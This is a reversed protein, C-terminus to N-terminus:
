KKTGKLTKQIIGKIYDSNSSNENSYKIRVRYGKKTNTSPVTINDLYDILGEPTIALVEIDKNVAYRESILENSDRIFKMNNSCVFILSYGELVCKDVNHLEWEINTSVSVECAIKLGNKELSVDVRGNSKLLTQELIAVYGLSEAHRKVLHQLYRHKSVDESRTSKSVDLVPVIIKNDLTDNGITVEKQQTSISYLTQKRKVNKIVEDFNCYNSRIKPIVEINCNNSARGVNVLARGTDLNLIDEVTFNSYNSAVKKADGESVRFNVRIGVNSQISNLVDPFDSLQQLDQHAVILGVSYKRIGSLMSAISPSLFYQFEDIYIFYPKRDVNDSSQRALIAQHFKSLIMSGLLHSNEIGILGQSLKFIIIKNSHIIDSFDLGEKQGVIQRITKHRLFADLRTLIPVVADGRLLPYEKKWYYHIHEDAITRLYEERFDKEVLFRRLDLLTGGRSSELIALIANAFISNMQDGWSTSLKKFIAVLDSALVNKEIDSFASLLNVGQILSSDSPDLMIVDNVRNKPINELVQDAIDGHPDFLAIGYGKLIDQKILELLLTSKGTGTSGIIHTHTCRQQATVSVAVSSGMHENIGIEFENGLLAKPAPVTHRPISILKQSSITPLHVYNVLEQVNLLMGMRRSRRDLFDALHDFLDYGDNSLPILCNADSKSIRTIASAIQTDIYQVREEDKSKILARIVCGFLPCAVKRKAMEVMEPADIFFSGGQSETVSHVISEDWTNVTGSFLVQVAVYEEDNLIEFIGFLSTLSESKGKTSLPRMFEENLGFDRCMFATYQELSARLADPREILTCSPIFARFQHLVFVADEDRCVVQIIFEAKSAIIEFSIPNGNGSLVSLLEEFQEGTVKASKPVSVAYIKLQYVTQDAFAIPRIDDDLSDEDENLDQKPFLLDRIRKIWHPRKGDDYTRPSEISYTLPTLAPELLVPEDFVQWGRGRLEWKYFQETLKQQLLM